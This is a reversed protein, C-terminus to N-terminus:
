VFWVSYISPSYWNEILLGYCDKCYIGWVLGCYYIWYYYSTYVIAAYIKTCPFHFIIINWWCKASLQKPLKHWLASAHCLVRHVARIFHILYWCFGTGVPALHICLDFTLSSIMM